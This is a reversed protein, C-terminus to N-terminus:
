EFKWKVTSKAKKFMSKVVSFYKGSVGQQRLKFLLAARNVTDFASKLDVYCVYLPRKRAKSIDILNGLIFVNDTSGHNLRYAFQLSDFSNMANKAFCLRNNMIKDFIKGLAPM